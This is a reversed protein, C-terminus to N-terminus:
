SLMELEAIDEAQNWSKHEQFSRIAADAYKNPSRIQRHQEFLITPLPTHQREECLVEVLADHLMSADLALPSSGLVREASRLAIRAHSDQSEAVYHAADALLNAAHKLLVSRSEHAEM